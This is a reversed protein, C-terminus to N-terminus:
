RDTWYGPRRKAHAVARVIVGEDVVEYFVLYPFRRVVYRRHAPGANWPPYVLPSELIAEFARDIDAVLQVGLGARREEYWAAAEALEAEAEPAIILKM